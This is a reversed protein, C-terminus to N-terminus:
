IAALTRDVQAAHGRDHGAMTELIMAMTMTGRKSHQASLALQDESLTRLLVLTEERASSLEALGQAMPRANYNGERAIRDPDMQVFHTVSGDLLGRIRMQWLREVDVMHWVIETVSFAVTDPKRTLLATDQAARDEARDVAALFAGM